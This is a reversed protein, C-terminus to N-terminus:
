LRFPATNSIIKGCALVVHFNYLIVISLSCGMFITISLYDFFISFWNYYKNFNSYTHNM